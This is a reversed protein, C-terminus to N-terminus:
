MTLFVVPLLLIVFITIAIFYFFLAISSKALAAFYGGGFVNKSAVVLYGFNAIFLLGLIWDTDLALLVISIFVLVIYNFSHIHASFVVTQVLGESKRWYLGYILFGFVPMMLLISQSFVSVYNMVFAKLGGPQLLQHAGGAFFMEIFNMQINNEEFFQSLEKPSTAVFEKFQEATLEANRLGLKISKKGEYDFVEEFGTSDVQIPSLSDFSSFVDIMLFFVVGTLLYIQIPTFYRARRGNCFDKTLKGPRTMLTSLSRFLKGEVAFQQAFFDSILFWLTVRIDTVKQGCRSCFRDPPLLIEGCNLCQQKKSKMSRPESEVKSFGAGALPEEAESGEKIFDDESPNVLSPDGVPAHVDLNALKSDASLKSDVSVPRSEGVTGSSGVGAQPLPKADNDTSKRDSM